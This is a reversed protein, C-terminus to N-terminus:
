AYLLVLELAKGNDEVDLIVGKLNTALGKEIVLVTSGNYKV